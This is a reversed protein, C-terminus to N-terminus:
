PATRLAAAAKCSSRTQAASPCVAQAGRRFLTGPQNVVQMTIALDVLQTVPELRLVAWRSVQLSAPLRMGGTHPTRRTRRFAIENGGRNGGRIEGTRAVSSRQPGPALVFMGAVVCKHVDALEQDDHGREAYLQLAQIAHRVLDFDSGTENSTV